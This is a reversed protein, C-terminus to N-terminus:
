FLLDNGSSIISVDLQIGNTQYISVKPSANPLYRYFEEDDKYWKIAYIDELETQHSCNIWFGENLKVLEPIAVSVKLAEILHILAFCQCLVLKILNMKLNM